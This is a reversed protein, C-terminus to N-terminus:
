ISCLLYLNLAVILAVTGTAAITTVRRNVLPGMVDARRTMLVLPALAFPLGFSLVGQSIVLSQTVPRALGLVVLAPLM